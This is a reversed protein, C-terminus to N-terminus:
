QTRGQGSPDQTLSQGQRSRPLDPGNGRREGYERTSATMMTGRHHGPRHGHWYPPRHPRRAPRPMPRIRSIWLRLPTRAAPRTLPLPLCHLFHDPEM